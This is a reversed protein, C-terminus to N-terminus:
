DDITIDHTLALQEFLARAEESIVCVQLPPKQERELAKLVLTRALGQRRQAPAVWLGAGELWRQAQSNPWPHSPWRKYRFFGLVETSQAAFIVRHAHMACDHYAFDRAELPLRAVDRPALRALYHYAGREYLKYTM